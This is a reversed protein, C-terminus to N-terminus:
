HSPLGIFTPDLENRRVHLFGVAMPVNLGNAFSDQGIGESVGM